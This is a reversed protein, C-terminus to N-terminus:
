CRKWIGCRKTVTSICESTRALRATNPMSVRVHATVLLSCLSVRSLVLIWVILGVNLPYILKFCITNCAVYPLHHVQPQVGVVGRVCLRLLGELVFASTHLLVSVYASTHLFIICRSSCGSSVGSASSCCARLYTHQRISVYASTHQFIRCSRSCGSSVGSAYACRASLFSM